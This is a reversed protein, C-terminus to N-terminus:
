EGITAKISPNWQVAMAIFVTFHLQWLQAHELIMQHVWQIVKCSRLLWKAHLPGMSELNLKGTETKLINSDIM